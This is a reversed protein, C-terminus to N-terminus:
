VKAKLDSVAKSVSAEVMAMLEARLGIYHGTSVDSVAKAIAANVADSLVPHSGSVISPLKSPLFPQPGAISQLLKTIVQFHGLLYVVAGLLYPLLSAFTIAM